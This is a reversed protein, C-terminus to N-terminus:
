PRASALLPMLESTDVDRNADPIVGLLPGSRSIVRSVVPAATYAATTVFSNAETPRPADMMVLVVYRPQDMPFAAAFTTVNV